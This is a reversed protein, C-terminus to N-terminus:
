GYAAIHVRDSCRVLKPRLIIYIILTINNSQQTRGLVLQKSKLVLEVSDRITEMLKWYAMFYPMKLM